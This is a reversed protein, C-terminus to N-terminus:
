SNGNGELVIRERELDRELAHDDNYKGPFRTRLKVVNLDCIQQLSVAPEQLLGLAAVGQVVKTLEVKVKDLDIKGYFLGRKIQDMILGSAIIIQDTAEFMNIVPQDFVFDQIQLADAAIAVYWMLDGGEEILNVKDFTDSKICQLLEAAESCLGSASHILRCGAFEFKGPTPQPLALDLVDLRFDPSETRVANAIYAQFNM